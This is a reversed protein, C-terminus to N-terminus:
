RIDLLEVEFVLTSNPPIGPRSDSGYAEAAPVTVKRVEGERMGLLARDLGPVVNGEGVWFALPQNRAWSDDFVGGDLLAGRFHVSIKDGKKAAEGRGERLRQSRVGQELLQEPQPDFPRPPEKRCAPLALGAALWLAHLTPILQTRRM